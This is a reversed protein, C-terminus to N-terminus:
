HSGGDGFCLLSLGVACTGEAGDFLDSVAMSLVPRIEGKWIVEVMVDWRNIVM